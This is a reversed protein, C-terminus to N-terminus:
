LKQSSTIKFAKRSRRSTIKSELFLYLPFLACFLALSILTTRSFIINKFSQMKLLFTNAETDEAVVLPATYILEGRYFFDVGGVREGKTVPATLTDSYLYYKYSLDNQLDAGLPLFLLIDSDICASIKAVDEKSSSNSLTMEIPIKCISTGKDMVKTFGFSTKAHQILANAIEFSGIRDDIISAGMVVCIYSAGGIKAKTAVCYGGADTMGAILGRAHPNTYDATYHASILSNRNNVTFEEEVGGSSYSIRRAVASSVELYTKNEAAAKAIRATDALTTYMKDDDIGAPNTYYTNKAGLELLRKSMLKVFETPTGSIACALAYAADNYGGCVTAYILDIAKIEDNPMLGIYAGDYRTPIKDSISIIEEPNEEFHEIAILGTLIKVTSAPAIKSHADKSLIVTETDTNEFYVNKAMSVDPLGDSFSVAGIGVTICSFFFSCILLLCFIRLFSRM